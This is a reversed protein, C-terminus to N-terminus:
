LWFCPTVESGNGKGSSICLRKLGPGRVIGLRWFRGQKPVEGGGAGVASRGKCVHMSACM